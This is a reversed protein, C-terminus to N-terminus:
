FKFKFWAKSFTGQILGNEISKDENFYDENENYMPEVVKYFDYWIVFWLWM